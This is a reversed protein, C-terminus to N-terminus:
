IKTYWKGIVNGIEFDLKSLESHLVSLAGSWFLSRVNWIGININRKWMWTEDDKTKGKRPEKSFNMVM